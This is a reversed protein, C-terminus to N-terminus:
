AAETETASFMGADADVRRKAMESYSENLEILIASRQLRDAVLATTGAGGFCDLVTCPVVGADCSCSPSWGLTTSKPPELMTGSARTRGKEHTRESRDIVMATREVDRKWPAGCKACCGKESTGAKICPEILDPPFTAFHAESFPQTAVTWVSRKNRRGDQRTLNSGASGNGHVGRQYTESSGINGAIAGAAKREAWTAGAVTQADDAIAEADYYYRGSKSLLFLYEHAKTPRDTVSEPMPNSKAWIIDSRLYWGDARLAFAVAWPIGIFDKPKLGAVKGVSKMAAGASGYKGSKSTATSPATACFGGGGAYSDGLNLWCTADRRMVRRVERFVGVLEAVYADPTPELGIQRDIRRAGCKGCDGGMSGVGDRNRQGREDVIGDARGSGNRGQKHDCAPDGGDWAATGYDRLGFYPPSTVVMHVSEDPLTRLVDRCDGHLIRVTV